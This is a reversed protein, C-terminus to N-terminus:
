GVLDSVFWGILGAATATLMGWVVVGGVLVVGAVVRWVRPETTVRAWLWQAWAGLLGASTIVTAGAGLAFAVTPRVDPLVVWAVLSALLGLIVGGFVGAVTRTTVDRWFGESRVWEGMWSRKTEPGTAM